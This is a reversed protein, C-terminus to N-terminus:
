RSKDTISKNFLMSKLSLASKKGMEKEAPNSKVPKKTSWTKNLKQDVQKLVLCNKKSQKKMHINELFDIEKNTKLM